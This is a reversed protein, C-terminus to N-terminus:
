VLVRAGIIMECFCRAFGEIRRPGTPMKWFRLRKTQSTMSMVAVVGVVFLCRLGILFIIGLNKQYARCSCTAFLNLLTTKQSIFKIIVLLIALNKSMCLWEMPEM